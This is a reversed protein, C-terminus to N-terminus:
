LECFLDYYFVGFVFCLVCFWVYFMIIVVRVQIQGFSVLVSSSDAVVVVVVVVVSSSCASVWKMIKMMM